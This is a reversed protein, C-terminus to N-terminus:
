INGAGDTPAAEANRPHGPRGATAVVSTGAPPVWRADCPYVPTVM